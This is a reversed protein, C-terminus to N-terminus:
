KVNVSVDKAKVALYNKVIFSLITTLVASVILLLWWQSIPLASKEEVQIWFEATIAEDAPLDIGQPRFQAFAKYIGPEPFVVNFSIVEDGGDSNDHDDGNALATNVLRSQNYAHDHDEPHTHIFQSFDDKIIALHMDADLYQEVEIEQGNLTHIDFFLVLEKNKVVTNNISLSVQYNGTIVNRAFTVKKEERPGDGNIVIELHGFTHGIGDKVISSWIKYLGPKNFIHNVSFVASDETETVPHIHFFENMDSRLGIVHMKKAHEIELDSEPVPLNDPKKNVFFNLQLSAGVTYPVPNANFNVVLGEKIDTEEHYMSPVHGAHDGNMSDHDMMAGM